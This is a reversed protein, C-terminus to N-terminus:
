GGHNRRSLSVWALSRAQLLSTVIPHGPRRPPRGLFDHVAIHEASEAGFRQVRAPLTLNPWGPSSLLPTRVVADMKGLTVPM